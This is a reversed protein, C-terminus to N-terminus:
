LNNVINIPKKGRLAREINAWANKQMDEMDETTIGAIHTTFVIKDEIGEPLNLLPHDKSPPEPSLTDLAAMGIENNKLANALDLQNIIEGRATNVLISDKKMMKLKDKNIMGETKVNLPTHLSIIDCTKLLDDLELYEIGYEEEKDKKRTNSTYSIKCAFPKLRKIVELGIDGLGVIGVHLSKLTRTGKEQYEKYSEAFKFRRIDKDAEVTRRLAALILGITHESVSASNVGKNNCVYIGKERAAKIDVGDYGVGLTQILEVDELQDIMKRNLRTTGLLIYKAGKSKEIFEEDSYDGELYSVEVEDPPVIDFRDLSKKGMTALIKTM